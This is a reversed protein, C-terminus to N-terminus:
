PPDCSARIYGISIQFLVIMDFPISIISVPMNYISTSLKIRGYNIISYAYWVEETYNLLESENRYATEHLRAFPGEAGGSPDDSNSGGAGISSSM